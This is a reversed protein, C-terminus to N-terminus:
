TLMKRVIASYPEYGLDKVARAWGDRGYGFSQTAGQEIAEREIRAHMRRLEDMDGAVYWWHLATEGSPYPDLETVIASREGCHLKYRGRRILAEVDQQRHLQRERMDFCPALWPRSRELALDAIWASM